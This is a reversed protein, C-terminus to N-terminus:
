GEIAKSNGALVIEAPNELWFSAIDADTVIELNRQYVWELASRYALAGRLMTRYISAEPELLRAFEWGLASLTLRDSTRKILGWYEYAAVKRPDFIRRAAEMGEIISIGSAKKRLLRVVERVDSATALMPLAATLMSEAPSSVRKLALARDTRERLFPTVKEAQWSAGAGVPPGHVFAADKNSIIAM